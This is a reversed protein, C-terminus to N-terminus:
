NQSNNLDIESLLKYAESRSQLLKKKFKDAPNLEIAKSYDDIAGQYDELNFKADGRSSFAKLNQPDLEIAKSYDDIAGQYDEKDFKENASKYFNNEELGM